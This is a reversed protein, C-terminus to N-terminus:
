PKTGVLVGQNAVKNEGENDPAASPLENQNRIRINNKEKFDNIEQGKTTIQTNLVEIVKTMQDRNSTLAPLVEKVTREVLVGGVMRFCKRDADVNQLTEIVLKHENLDMELESLKSALQRQETRLRQFGQIVEENSKGAVKLVNKAQKKSGDTAM